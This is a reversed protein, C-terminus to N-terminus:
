RRGPYIRDSRKWLDKNLLYEHTKEVIEYFKRKGHLNEANPLIKTWIARETIECYILCTWILFSIAEHDDKFQFENHFENFKEENMDLYKESLEELQSPKRIMFAPEGPKNQWQSNKDARTILQGFIDSRQRRWPM